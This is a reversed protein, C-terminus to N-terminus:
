DALAGSDQDPPYQKRTPGPRDKNPQSASRSLDAPRDLVYLDGVRRWAGGPPPTEPHDRDRPVLVIRGAVNHAIPPPDAGRRVVVEPRNPECRQAEYKVAFSAMYEEVVILGNPGALDVAQASMREASREVVSWPILAYVYDDRYPKNRSLWAMAESRRAMTTAIAYSAPTAVLLVVPITVALKRFRASQVRAAAAYGLGGFTCLYMYTPLLFTYRDQISYRVAFIAHIALGGLLAWRATAPLDPRVARKMGWAAAPLLLNPFNFAVFAGSLLLLRSTVATNFVEEGYSVGVLASSVTGFLDGTRIVESLVLGSYPLSGLLWLGAAAAIDLLRVQRARLAGALLVALIPLTLLALNHNAWGLGNLLLAALLYGKRRTQAFAVVCWCEASLLATVLTYSEARTALQWFTNALALSGAAFLAAHRTRTLTWVCGFVNAVTVAAALSSILTVAFCPEVLGAAAALRGLWHHLPHSLALGLPNVPEHTVVRLIHYGFDQWQPGRSATAAYLALSCLAIALWWRWLSDPKAAGPAVQAAHANAPM